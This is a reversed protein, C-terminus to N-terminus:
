SSDNGTTSTVATNHVVRNNQSTGGFGGGIAINHVNNWVKNRRIIVGDTVVAPPPAWYGGGDENGVFIGNYDTDHVLNNEITINKAGDIYIATTGSDAPNFGVSSVDNGSIIGNEPYYAGKGIVDMGIFSVNAITNNTMQFRNIRGSITIAENGGTYTDHVYNGDIILDSYSNGAGIPFNFTYKQSWSSGTSIGLNM